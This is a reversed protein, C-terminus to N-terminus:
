GGKRNSHAGRWVSGAPKRGADAQGRELAEIRAELDETERIKRAQEVARLRTNQLQNVVIAPGPPLDGALVRETLDKLLDKIETIEGRGRGRGSKGARSANRRREDALAPDHNFCWQVGPPVSLTCRGGDRKIGQCRAM